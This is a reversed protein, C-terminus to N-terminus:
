PREESLRVLRATSTWYIIGIIAIINIIPTSSRQL